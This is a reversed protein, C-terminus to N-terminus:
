KGKKRPDDSAKVYTIGWPGVGHLQITAGEISYAFHVFKAPMTAFGGPSLKTADEKNFNEGNGMYFSGQLVSVHEIAPHWHPKIEYNPPIILRITFPGANAPNGELVAAKVGKPLSEPGDVWKLDKENLLIHAADHKAGSSHQQGYLNNWFLGLVFLIMVRMLTKM